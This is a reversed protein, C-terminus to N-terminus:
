EPAYLQILSTTACGRNGDLTGCDFQPPQTGMVPRPQTSTDLADPPAKISEVNKVYEAIVTVQTYQDLFPTEFSIDLDGRPSPGLFSDYITEVHYDWASGDPSSTPRLPPQASTLAARSGFIRVSVYRSAAIEGASVTTTATFGTDGRKVSLTVTPADSSATINVQLVVLLIVGGALLLVGFFAMLRQYGGAFFGASGFFVALVVLVVAVGFLTGHSAMVRGLNGDSTLGVLGALSVAIPVGGALLTFAAKVRDSEPANPRVWGAIRAGM